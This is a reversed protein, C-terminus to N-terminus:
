YAFKDQVLKLIVQLLSWVEEELFGHLFTNNIDFQFIPWNKSTALAIFIRITVVKAVSSFRDKFDLGEVQSYGKAVLHTKYRDVEGNPKTKVKYVWKSGIARKGKPLDTLLYGSQM